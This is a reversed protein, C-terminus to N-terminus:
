FGMMWAAMEAAMTMVVTIMGVATIKEVTIMPYDNTDYSETPQSAAARLQQMQQPRILSQKRQITPVRREKTSKLKFLVM